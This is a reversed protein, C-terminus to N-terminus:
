WVPCILFPPFSYLGALRYRSSNRQIFVEDEAFREQVSQEVSTTVFMSHSDGVCMSM